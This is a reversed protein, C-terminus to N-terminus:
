PRAGTGWLTCCGATAKLRVREGPCAPETLLGRKARASLAAMAPATPVTASTAKRAETRSPLVPATVAKESLSATFVAPLVCAAAAAMSASSEPVTGLAEGEGAAAAACLCSCRGKCRWRERCSLRSKLALLLPEKLLLAEEAEGEPLPRWIEM